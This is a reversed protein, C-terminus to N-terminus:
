YIIASFAPEIGAIDSDLAVSQALGRSDTWSVNINVNKYTPFTYSSVAWSITFATSNLTTATTGTAISQYSTYGTTNTLVEFDMLTELQKQALVTAEGKQRTLMNDYSLYNQFRILATASLAIIVATALVEVLSAGDQTHSFYRRM